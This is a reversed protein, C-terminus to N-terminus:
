RGRELEAEAAIYGFASWQPSALIRGFTEAAARRDGRILEHVGIGYQLTVGDIEGGPNGLLAEATTEGRYLRLLAAYTQNEVIDADPPIADLVASAEDHRGLHSLSLYLWYSASVLRDANSAEGAEAKFIEASRSFDGQLYHALGHHYAINSRLTGIPINRANPLGDPEIEDPRNQALEAANEFDRIADAFRRQTIFRHGRHRLMRADDPHLAIGRSFVEIAERYRGLYALRRGVWILADASGPNRALAERAEALEGERQARLSDPLPPALLPRALLSIAEIRMEPALSALGPAAFLLSIAAALYM